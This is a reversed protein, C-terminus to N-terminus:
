DGILNCIKNGMNTDCAAVWEEWLMVMALTDLECYMLLAPKILDIEERTMETFQSRAYATMAGGGDKIQEDSFIRGGPVDGELPELASYPDTPVGNEMQVWVHNSFNRSPMQDTGYIPQSYKAQLKSSTRLIAPLVAKLSNSGRALPHYYHRLLIKQMDVMRGTPGAVLSRLWAALEPDVEEALEKIVTQEHHAYHLVSGEDNELEKRLAQAFDRNPLKGRELSIWEGAHRIEGEKTVLHHSFQFAVQGYPRAGRHFPLASRTTEFDIFHLPFKLRLLEACLGHVDVVPETRGEHVSNVQIVQRESRSWGSTPQNPTPNIHGPDLDRIRYIGASTWDDKQRSAWIETVLPGDLDDMTLNTQAAWCEHFGSRFGQARDDPSARFECGACKSGQIPSDIKEGAMSSAAWAAVREEFTMGEKDTDALIQEVLEGVDIKYLVPEDIAEQPLQGTMYASTRGREDKRLMFYGNLGDIPSVSSKDALMLHPRVTYGPMAARVVYTQFAVDHLYPVWDSKIGGRKGVFIEEADPDISKSKVEILDITQGRKCIVDARILCDQAAFAAEFITVPDQQLLRSTQALAEQPVLTEVSEGPMHLCRALEGVQFGGEALARLFDNKDHCNLYTKPDLSYFIKTPCELGLRYRSKSLPRGFM